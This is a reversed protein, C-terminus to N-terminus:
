RDSKYIIRGGVITQVVHLDPTLLVLDAALGPALRGKQDSIGLLDAPTATVTTLAAAAPCGSFAVLNRVARDLPLISGALRGDALRASDGDVTVELDGILSRGPPMGLAAMADSVLTLRNEGAVKWILAVVAPHVHIGDPIVGVRVRPDNLLAGILGPERHELPRMANFLHTGYRIGAEIGAQAEAYSAFSHGASVVVGREVLAAITELASPLEPALTVLRVGRQPSWGAVLAPDPAQFYATNHAGRKAPSLFPGEVHLGLPTTGAWARPPGQALVEQAAAITELPTTVITPLFTTVGYRPLRAAVAWITAPDATFDSGFGGNLQLDIFGPALVLGGADAVHAQAPCQVAEASGVDAIRAGDVLLAGNELCRDPTYITANHIYLM